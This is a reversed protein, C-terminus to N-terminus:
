LYKVPNTNEESLIIAFNPIKKTLYDVIYNKTYRESEYHGIDALLLQNEAEYFQHYKLDATLFADAGVQIAKKIAFSGSGGLVAVKKIPKELYESHRIGDAKMKNKVFLLFDKEPMETELEGIMGLGINQHSNKLDYIEYAVEEYVHNSFLAKLIKSQLHKEFTVEIKIETNEVFEGREGIEPNSNENGQYSGIGQTNFSCNEYNGINGAGADFLANRLKQHNEPITYTVLKQIFNEKPVLIKTNQLGLADCFIKNVGNQHNDLATHVAYIAIDNKIAKLVAREVYNKGTIKKLGSFLIPHFCVVMNCKKSIAEDIVNELADHCVLIGTTEDEPNGVLLGVNDFDEAYALPAMTELVSIVEKIKM